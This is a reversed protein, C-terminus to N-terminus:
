STLNVEYSSPMQSLKSKRSVLVDVFDELPLLHVERGVQRLVVREASIKHSRRFVIILEESHMDNSKERTLVFILQQMKGTLSLTQYSIM